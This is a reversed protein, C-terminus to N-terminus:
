RRGVVRAAKGLGPVARALQQVVVVRLVTSLFNPSHGGAAVLRSMMGPVKVCTILIVMIIFLNLTGGPDVPFGFVPLLTATDTLMWQGAYLFFGQVIPVALTGLYTRWWLRAIPDTQPLAHCALALPAASTLVLIVAFRTILSIGTMALLVVIIALCIMFLMAAVDSQAGTLHTKIATMPNASLEGGGLDKSTVAGTLGNAAGILLGAFVQSFHAAIFGVVCRPALDKATYRAREDGGVLMTLVGAALFFLVFVLDVILVSRGSLAKVQPLVTVDPTILLASTIVGIVSDLSALIGVTLAKVIGNLLWDM